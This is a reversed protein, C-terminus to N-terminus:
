PTRQAPQVSETVTNEAQAARPLPTLYPQLKALKAPGIGRVELLDEVQEFPGTQERYAVIAQALKQGIGPLVALEAWSAQNVDLKFDAALPAAEDIDIQPEYLSQYVIWASMCALAAFLLVAFGIQDRGAIQSQLWIRDYWRVDSRDNSNTVQTQGPM